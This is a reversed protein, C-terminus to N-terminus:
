STGECEVPGTEWGGLNQCIDGNLESRPLARINDARVDTVHGLKGQRVNHVIYDVAANMFTYRLFNQWNRRLPKDKSSGHTDYVATLDLHQAMRWFMVSALLVPCVNNIAYFFARMEAASMEEWAEDGGYM